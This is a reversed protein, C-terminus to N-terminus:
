PGDHHFVPSEDKACVGAGISRRTVIAYFDNENPKDVVIRFRGRSNTEDTGSAVDDPEAVRFLRVTRNAECKDKPSRVTGTFHPYYNRKWEPPSGSTDDLIKVTTRFSQGAPAGTSGALVLVSAVFSAALVLRM